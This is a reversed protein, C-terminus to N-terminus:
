LEEKETGGGDDDLSHYQAFACRSELCDLAEKYRTVNRYALLAKANVADCKVDQIDSCGGSMQVYRAFAWQCVCWHRVPCSTSEDGHCSMRSSCWNPQGTVDCFNGGTTGGVDICVHHAGGDHDHSDCSGTRTYGTLAMGDSSCPQLTRGYLNLDNSALAANHGGPSPISSVFLILLANYCSYVKM